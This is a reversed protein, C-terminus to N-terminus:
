VCDFLKEVHARKGLLNKMMLLVHFTTLPSFRKGIFNLNVYFEDSNNM